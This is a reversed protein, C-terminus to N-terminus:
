LIQRLSSWLHEVHVNDRWPKGDMLSASGRLAGAGKRVIRLAPTPSRSAPRPYILPNSHNLLRLTRFTDTYSPMIKLM